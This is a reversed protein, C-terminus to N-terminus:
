SQFCDDNSDFLVYVNSYDRISVVFLLVMKITTNFLKKFIKDHCNPCLQARKQQTILIIKHHKDYSQYAFRFIGGTDCLLQVFM